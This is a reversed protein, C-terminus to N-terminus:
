HGSPVIDVTGKSEEFVDIHYVVLDHSSSNHKLASPLLRVISLTSNSKVRSTADRCVFFRLRRGDAVETQTWLKQQFNPPESLSVTHM